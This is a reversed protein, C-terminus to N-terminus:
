KDWSLPAAPLSGHYRAAAKYAAEADEFDSRAKDRAAVLKSYAHNALKEEAERLREKASEREVEAIEMEQRAEDEKSAREAFIEARSKAGVKVASDLGDPDHHPWDTNISM